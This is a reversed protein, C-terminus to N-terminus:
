AYAHKHLEYETMRRESAELKGLGLYGMAEGVAKCVTGIFMTPLIALSLRNRRIAKWAPSFVRAFLVIAILPSAGAYAIRRLVSWERSRYASVLHGGVWHEDLFEKWRSINIHSLSARPEFWVRQGVAAMAVLLQDGYSLAHAPDDTAGLIADRDCSCNNLPWYDIERAPQDHMWNGYDLLFGAWSLLKGPNANHFGPIVVSWGERHRALLQEAWDPASAFSHTEGLFAYPAHAAKLALARARGLSKLDPVKVVLVSGFGALTAHDPDFAEPHPTALVVEIRDALTQEGLRKLVGRVPNPGDTPLIVSLLLEGSDPTTGSGAAGPSEDANM